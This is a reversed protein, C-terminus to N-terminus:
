VSMKVGLVLFFFHLLAYQKKGTVNAIHEVHDAVKRVDADEGDPALFFPAFNVMVIGDVQDEGRGIMRLIDDPVNRSIDHLARADSHSWIVPAGFTRALDIAQTATADSTHSLDILM